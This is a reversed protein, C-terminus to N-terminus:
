PYAIPYIRRHQLRIEGSIATANLGTSVIETPILAGSLGLSALLPSALFAITEEAAEPHIRRLACEQTLQPRGAPDRFTWLPEARESPHDPSNPHSEPSNAQSSVSPAFWQRWRHRSINGSSSQEHCRSSLNRLNQATFEVGVAVVASGAAQIAPLGTGPDTYGYAPQEFPLTAGALMLVLPITQLLLRRM